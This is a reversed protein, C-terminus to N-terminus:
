AFAPVACASDVTSAEAEVVASRNGFVFPVTLSLMWLGFGYWTVTM